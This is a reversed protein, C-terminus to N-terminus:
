IRNDDDTTLALSESLAALAQRYIERIGQIWKTM